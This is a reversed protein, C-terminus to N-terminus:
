FKLVKYSSGGPRRIKSDELHNLNNLYPLVVPIELSIRSIENSSVDHSTERGVSAISSFVGIKSKKDSANQIEVAIDFKVDCVKAVMANEFEIRDSAIGNRKTVPAIICGNDLEQQSEAVADTIDKLVEKIFEKLEM